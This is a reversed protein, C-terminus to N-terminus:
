RVNRTFNKDKANWVYEVVPDEDFSEFRIKLGKADWEWMRELEFIARIGQYRKLAIAHDGIVKWNKQGPARALVAVRDMQMFATTGAAGADYRLLTIEPTQSSLSKLEIFKPEEGAITYIEGLISNQHKLSFVHLELTSNATQLLKDLDQTKLSKIELAHALVSAFTICIFLASTKILYNM